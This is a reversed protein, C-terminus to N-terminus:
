ALAPFGAQGDPIIDFDYVAGTVFLSALKTNNTEVQFQVPTPVGTKPDAEIAQWFPEIGPSAPNDVQEFVLATRFETRKGGDDQATIITAPVKQRLKFRMRIKM